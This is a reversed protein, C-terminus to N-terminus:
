VGDGTLDHLVDLAHVGRDAILVVGVFGVVEAERGVANLRHDVATQVCVDGLRDEPALGGTDLCETAGRNGDDGGAALTDVDVEGPRSRDRDIDLHGVQFSVRVIRRVPVVTDLGRQDVVDATVHAAAEGDPAIHPVHGKR